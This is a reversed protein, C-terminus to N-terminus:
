LRGPTFLDDMTVEAQVIGSHRGKTVGYTTVMTLHVAKKTRSESRFASLKNLLNSEYAADVAFPGKSYKSECLNIIGDRRDILLDIQAGPVSKSSRWSSIETSIAAVGLAEKIQETHSLCVQEFAYGRWANLSPNDLNSSWYRPNKPRRAKMFRLYFLSFPDVLQYMCLNDDLAFSPFSRIFGCFELEDLIKTLGGGSALGTVAIIENRTLGRAKTSLAEVVRIYSDSNKFLTSYVEAFEGKLPADEAFCLDDINQPLSRGKAMLSLYYPVGGFAMYAEIIRFRDFEVEKYTLYQETECLDFPAIRMRRTTRNHLGGKNKFLNKVIWSTASGCVILFIDERGAGWGNWFHEFATLFGSKPTDMWPLEDLFVVKRRGKPMEELGRRLAAFAELWNRATAESGDMQEQLALCFSQLQEERSSRALGTAYFTFENKFYERVLFTKGVRRRGYVVLFEPLGSEHYERLARQERKRGVIKM